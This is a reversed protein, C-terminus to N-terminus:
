RNGQEDLHSVEADDRIGESEDAEKGGAGGKARKVEASSGMGM